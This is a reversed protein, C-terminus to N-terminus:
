HPEEGSFGMIRHWFKRFKVGQLGESMCDSTVNDTPCYEISVNGRKSQDAIHCYRINIAQMWKGLSTKGNKALLTASKNDQKVINERVECGQEKLFLPAWLALPLAHDVGVLEAVTSSEANLKQKASINM